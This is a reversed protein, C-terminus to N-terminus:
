VSHNSTSKKLLWCEKTFSIMVVHHENDIVDSDNNINKQSKVQILAKNLVM